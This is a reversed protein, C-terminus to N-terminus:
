EALEMLFNSLREQTMGGAFVTFHVLGLLPRIALCVTPSM